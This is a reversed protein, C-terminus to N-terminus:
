YMPAWQQSGPRASDHLHRRRPVGALDYSDAHAFVWTALSRRMRTRAPLERWIAYALDHIPADAEITAREGRALGAALMAVERDAGPGDPARRRSFPTIAATLLRLPATTSRQTQGLLAWIAFPAAGLRRYDRAGVFTAHFSLAGPRGLEDSGVEDVRAIIWAADATPRALLAGHASTGGPREGFQECTRALDALWSERCGTSRAAIGYGGQRSGYVANPLAVHV